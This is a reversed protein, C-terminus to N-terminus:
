IQIMWHKMNQCIYNKPVFFSLSVAEMKQLVRFCINVDLYFPFSPKLYEFFDRIESQVKEFKLEVAATSHILRAVLVAHLDESPIADGVEAHSFKTSAVGSLM